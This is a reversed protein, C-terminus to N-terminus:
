SGRAWAIAANIGWGIAAIAAVAWKQERKRVAENTRLDSLDKEHTDLREHLRAYAARSESRLSEVSNVVNNVSTDLRSLVATFSQPDYNEM